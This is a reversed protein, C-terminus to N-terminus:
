NTTHADQNNVPFASAEGVLQQDPDASLLGRLMMEVLESQSINIRESRDKLLQRGTRSLNLTTKEKNYEDWKRTTARPM